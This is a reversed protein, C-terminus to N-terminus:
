SCVLDGKEFSVSVGSASVSRHVLESFTIISGDTGRVRVRQRSTTTFSRSTSAEAITFTEHGTYTPMSPDDPEFTVKV